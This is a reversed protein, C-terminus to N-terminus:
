LWHSFAILFIMQLCCNVTLSCSMSIFWLSSKQKNKMNMYGSAAAASMQVINILYDYRVKWPVSPATPRFTPSTFKHGSPQQYFLSAKKKKKKLDHPPFSNIGLNSGDTYYIRDPMNTNTGTVAPWSPEHSNIRRVSNQNSWDDQSSSRTSPQLRRSPGIM